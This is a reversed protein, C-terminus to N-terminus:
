ARFLGRKGFLPAREGIMNPDVHYRAVRAVERQSGFAM